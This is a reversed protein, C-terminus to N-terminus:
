LTRSRLSPIFLSFLFPLLHPLPPSLFLPLPFSPPPHLSPVKTMAKPPHVGRCTAKSIQAQKKINEFYKHLYQHM